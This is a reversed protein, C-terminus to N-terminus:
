SELNLSELHIRYIRHPDSEFAVVSARLICLSLSINACNLALITNSSNPVPQPTM